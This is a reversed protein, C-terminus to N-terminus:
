VQHWIFDYLYINSEARDLSIFRLDLGILLHINLNCRKFGELNVAKGSAGLVVDFSFHRAEHDEPQSILILWLWWWSWRASSLVLFVAWSLQVILYRSGQMGDWTMRPSMWLSSNWGQTCRCIYMGWYSCHSIYGWCIQYIQGKTWFNGRVHVYSIYGRYLCM